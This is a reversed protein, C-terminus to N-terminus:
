WQSSLRGRCRRSGLGQRWVRSWPWREFARVIDTGEPEETLWRSCSTSSYWSGDIVADCSRRLSRMEARRRVLPTAALPRSKKLDQAEERRPSDAAGFAQLGPAPGELGEGGRPHAPWCALGAWEPKHGARSGRGHAVLLSFCGVQLRGKGDRKRIKLFEQGGKSIRLFNM